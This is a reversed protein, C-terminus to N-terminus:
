HPSTTPPYHTLMNLGRVVENVRRIQKVIIELDKALPTEQEVQSLLHESLGLVVTAPQNLEHVSTEVLLLLAETEDVSSFSSSQAKQNENKRISPSIGDIRNSKFM